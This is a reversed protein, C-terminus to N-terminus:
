KRIYFHVVRVLVNQLGSAVHNSVRLFDRGAQSEARTKEMRRSLGVLATGIGSDEQLDGAIIRDIEWDWPLLVSEADYFLCLSPAIKLNKRVAIAPCQSDM